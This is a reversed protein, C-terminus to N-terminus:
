RSGADSLMQAYSPRRAEKARGLVTTGDAHQPNPDVGLEILRRLIREALEQQGETFADWADLTAHSLVSLGDSDVAYPDAGKELLYTFLEEHGRFAAIMLPTRNSFGRHDVPVGQELLWEVAELRNTNAAGFIPTYGQSVLSPDAGADALLQCLGLLGYSAANYLPTEGEADAGNPDAGATLLKSVIQTREEIEDPVYAIAYDIAAMGNAGRTESTSRPLPDAGASLLADVAALSGQNCAHMLPTLGQVNVINERANVDAGAALAAAIGDIDAKRSAKLLAKDAANVKGTNIAM